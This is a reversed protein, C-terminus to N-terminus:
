PVPREKVTTVAGQALLLGLTRTLDFGADIGTAAQTADGLGAGDGIALVFAVEAPGIVTLVPDFHPRTILVAEPGTGPPPAGAETNSRWIGHIPWPSTVVAVAPAFALGAAMLRDPPLTALADADFPTADAAHYARRLALELRAVDPLYPVSAAPPFAELFAPLADGYQALVPIAPPHARLFVGAMAAFFDEGVLKRVVPFGAELAATLSAAVNNRYVDFRKGAPAGRPGILGDPPPRDADLVANLFEAQGTM